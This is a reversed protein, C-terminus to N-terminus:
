HQHNHHPRRAERRVCRLPRYVKEFWGRTTNILGYIDRLECADFLYQRIASANAGGYLGGPVVMAAFGGICTRRLASEVFMRYINFAGKGLNGKACLTYVGSSKLFHVLAFLERCHATWEVAIGPNGLLRNIEAEQAEPAMLRLGVVYKSFFERQDPSLTDWPPSGLM